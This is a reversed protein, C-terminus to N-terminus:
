KEEIRIEHKLSCILTDMPISYVADEIKSTTSNEDAKLDIKSKKLELTKVFRVGSVQEIRRFLEEQYLTGGFPWGEQREGKKSEEYFPLPTLFNNLANDIEEALAQETGRIREHRVVTVEVKIGLYNPAALEINMTPLKYKNLEKKVTERLDKSLELASWEGKQISEMEDPVVLLKITGAPLDSKPGPTLCKVRAIKRSARLALNEYDTATVAREQARMEKSVRGKAEELSEQDRGGTAPKFNTVEKIYPITTKLVNIQRPPFNGHQGKGFRYQSFRVKHGREPVRGYQKMSGNAQPIAPGFRIKGTATDLVFHRDNKNSRSFDRVRTWPVFVLEREQREQVEVTEIEGGLPELIPAHRLGFHQAPEGNSTELEEEKFFEVNTAPVTAGLTFVQITKVEPSGNYRNGGKEGKKGEKPQHCCRLWYAQKGPQEEIEGPEMMLPLYLVLQGTKNLGATTDQEGSTTGLEIPCWNLKKEKLILAEWRWPVDNPYAGKGKAEECGFEFRLIYGSLTHEPKVEFGLYFCDDDKPLASFVQFVNNESKLTRIYDKSDDKRFLHILEPPRRITLEEDTTFILPEDEEQYLTTVETEKPVFAHTDDYEDEPDIPLQTSLYFTLETRASSAPKLQIGLLELFRRHNKEPVQNLRKVVQETMEAFLKILAMGPDSMNEHYSWEPLYREIRRRAEAIIKEKTELNDLKPETQLM